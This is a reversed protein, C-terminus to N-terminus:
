VFKQIIDIINQMAPAIVNILPSPYVGFGIVFIALPVLTIIERKGIDKFNSYQENVEGMFVRQYARLFYVANLLIGLTAFITIVKFVSFGGIFCLAESIFGSLYPLGLGAFFTM